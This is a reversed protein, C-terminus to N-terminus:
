GWDNKGFGKGKEFEWEPMVNVGLTKVFVKVVLHFRSPKGL